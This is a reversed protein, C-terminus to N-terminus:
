SSMSKKAGDPVEVKTKGADKIEVTTTRNIDRGNGNFEVHGSTMFQHKSLVGDKIWFKVSGKANSVEPGTGARGFTLREKAGEETLDSSYAGDALKIEQTKDL